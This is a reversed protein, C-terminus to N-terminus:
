VMTQLRPMDLIRIHRREVELLDDQQFRGLLRSVTEVALGTYHAIDHRSMSLNFECASFGRQEFHQSLNVLFGALRQSANKKGLLRLLEYDRALERSYLRYVQQQIDPDTRCLQELREISIEHISSTELAVAACGHYRGELADLGVLDGPLYFGLIQEDGDDSIAYVKISGSRVLYLTHAGDGINFLPEGCQLIRHRRSAAVLSDDAQPMMQAAPMQM